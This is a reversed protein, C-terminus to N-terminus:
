KSNKVGLIMEKIMTPITHTPPFLNPVIKTFCRSSYIYRHSIKKGGGQVGKVWERMAVTIGLKQLLLTYVYNM